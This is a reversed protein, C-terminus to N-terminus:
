MGPNEVDGFAYRFSAFLVYMGDESTRMQFVRLFRPDSLGDAAEFVHSYGYEAEAVARSICDVTHQAAPRFNRGAVESDSILEEEISCTEFGIALDTEVRQDPYM